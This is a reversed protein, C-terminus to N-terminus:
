AKKWLGFCLGACLEEWKKDEEGAKPLDTSSLDSSLMELVQSNGDQRHILVPPSFPTANETEGKWVTWPSSLSVRLQVSVSM